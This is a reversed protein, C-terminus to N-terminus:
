FVEEDRLYLATEIANTLLLEIRDIRHMSDDDVPILQVMKGVTIVHRLMPVLMSVDCENVLAEANTHEGARLHDSIQFLLANTKTMPHRRPMRGAYASSITIPVSKTGLKM